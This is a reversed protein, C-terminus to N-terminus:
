SFNVLNGKRVRARYPPHEYISYPAVKFSFASFLYKEEYTNIPCQQLLNNRDDNEIEIIGTKPNWM